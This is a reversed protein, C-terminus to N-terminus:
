FVVGLAVGERDGITAAFRFVVASNFRFDLGLDVAFDLSVDEDREGEATDLFADLVVRPTAYPTFRANEAAFTHGVTLGAPLSVVAGDGVSVGGGLVWDIDLPFEPASRTVAGSYDVGAFAAVDGGQDEAIGGRVQFNWYSARWAGMVGVDGGHTNLLYLGLGAPASPAVLLPTDWAVQARAETPRGLLAGGAVLALVVLRRAGM